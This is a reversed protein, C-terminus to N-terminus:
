FTKEKLATLNPEERIHIDNFYMNLKQHWTLNCKLSNMASFEWELMAKFKTEQM